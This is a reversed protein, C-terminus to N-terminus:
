SASVSRAGAPATRRVGRFRRAWKRVRRKTGDGGGGNWWMWAFCAAAGASISAAVTNGTLFGLTFQPIQVLTMIGWYHSPSVLGTMMMALGAVFVVATLIQFFLFPDM